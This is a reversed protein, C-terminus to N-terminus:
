HLFSQHKLNMDLSICVDFDKPIMELAKNRAVDFRWPVIKQTQVNVGYKKLLNVTNDTSGTDLVYLADADKASEIWREVFQEENLAITYVCIKLKDM